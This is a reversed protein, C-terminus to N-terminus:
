GGKRARAAAADGGGRDAPEGGGHADRFVFADGVYRQELVGDALFEVGRGRAPQRDEVGDLDHQRVDGGAFRDGAVSDVVRLILRGAGAFDREGALYEYLLVVERFHRRRLVEPELGAALHPQLVGADDTAFLDHLVGGAMDRFEPAGRVERRAGALGIGSAAGTVWAIQGQLSTM